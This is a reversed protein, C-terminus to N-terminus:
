NQFVNDNHFKLFEMKPPFRDPLTISKKNYKGFFQAEGLLEENLLQESMRVTFDTSLITILGVDFARDLLSNLCLGNHPNLRHEVEEAWPVIHSAVLLSTNGFDSICCRYNYSALVMRRFLGQKTRVTGSSLKDTEQFYDLQELNLAGKDQSFISKRVENSIEVLKDWDSSFENWVEVDLKSGNKMGSLNRASLDPDLRAFNALKIAVANSSRGIANALAIAKPDNPSIKSFPTELYLELALTLEKKTWNPSRAM